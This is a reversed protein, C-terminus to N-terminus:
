CCVFSVFVLCLLVFLAFITRPFIAISLGFRVGCIVFIHITISKVRVIQVLGQTEGGLESNIQQLYVIAMHDIHSYLKRIRLFFDSKAAAICFCVYFHQNFPRM